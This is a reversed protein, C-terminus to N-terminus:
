FVEAFAHIAIYALFFAWLGWAIYESMSITTRNRKVAAKQDEFYINM